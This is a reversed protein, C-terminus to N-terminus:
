LHLTKIIDDKKFGVIVTDGGNVVMTPFSVRPNYERVQDLTHQKEEGELKDVYVCEFEVHSSELFERAHRCHVCTSLAYLKVSCDSM